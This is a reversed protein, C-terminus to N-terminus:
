LKGEDAYSYYSDETLILHDLLRIDMLSCAEKIKRTIKDDANSPKLNGSPHNHVLIIGIALCDLAGKIIMRVDVMTGTIGGTSIHHYGIVNNSQNLYMAYFHERVNLDSPYFERVYESANTSGVIKAKHIDTPERVLTIKCIKSKYTKLLNCIFFGPFVGLSKM